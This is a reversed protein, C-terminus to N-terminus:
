PQFTEEDVKLGMQEPIPDNNKYIAVYLGTVYQQTVIAYKNKGKKVTTTM